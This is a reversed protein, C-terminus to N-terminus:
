EYILLLSTNLSVVEETELKKEFYNMFRLEIQEKWTKDIEITKPILLKFTSREPHNQICNFIQNQITEDKLFSNKRYVLQIKCEDLTPSQDPLVQLTDSVCTINTDLKVFSQLVYEGIYEPKLLFNEQDYFTQGNLKWIVRMTDNKLTKQNKDKLHVVRENKGFDQPDLYYSSNPEIEISLNKKSQNIIGTVTDIISMSVQYTGATQYCHQITKQDGYTGDGFDWLYEFTTPTSDPLEKKDTFTYCMTSYRSQQCSDTLTVKRKAFYINDNNKTRNSVFFGTTGGNNTTYSYDDFSSNIPAALRRSTKNELFHAYIDYGGLGEQQNSSYYLTGNNTTPFVENSASNINPGCNILNGWNGNQDKLSYWLDMGGLGGPRDSVCYLKAGDKTLCPHSINYATSNHIFPTPASWGDDQATYFFLGVKSESRQNKIQTRAVVLLNDGSFNAPGNHTDFLNLDFSKINSTISDKGLEVFFLSNLFKENGKQDKEIITNLLNNKRNSSIILGDKFYTPAFEDSNNTNISIAKITIEEQAHLPM